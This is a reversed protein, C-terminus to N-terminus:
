RGREDVVIFSAMAVERRSVPCILTLGTLKLQLEHKISWNRRMMRLKEYYTREIIHPIRGMGRKSELGMSYTLGANHQYFLFTRINHESESRIKNIDM